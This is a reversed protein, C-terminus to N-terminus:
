FIYKKVFYSISIMFFCIKKTRLIKTNSAQRKLSSKVSSLQSNLTSLQSNLTSLQSNLTSLQSNLTSFQSNLTSLQSNLTSLQFNLTSLQSNLTSNLQTSNLQTSNLQTSNLQISNFQTSNLQTSNLTSNLQYCRIHTAFGIMNWTKSLKWLNKVIKWGLKWIQSVWTGFGMCTVTTMKGGEERVSVEQATRIYTMKKKTWDKGFPGMEAFVRVIVASKHLYWKLSSGGGTHTEWKWLMDYYTDSLTMM